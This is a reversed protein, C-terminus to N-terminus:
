YRVEFNNFEEKSKDEKVKVNLVKSGVPGQKCLEILKEVKDDLGEFVAEVKDDVNKVYGNIGLRIANHRVFRRFFVGVVDGMILVKVKM